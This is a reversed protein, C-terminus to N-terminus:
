QSQEALVPYFAAYAERRSQWNSGGVRESAIDVSELGSSSSLEGNIGAIHWYYGASEWAFEEAIYDAGTLVPSQPDYVVRSYRSIDVGLNAATRLAAYYAAVIEEKGNHSPNSYTINKLEPVYRKMMWTSFAMQGYEHTLHLYGAGRTGSTYGRGQFYSEDGHETLEKGAGTEVTVQALFHSIEEPTTIDYEVLVRNLEGLSEQSLNWQLKGMVSDTYSLRSIQESTVLLAEATEVATPEPSEEVQEPECGRLFLALLMSLVFLGLSCLLLIQPPPPTAEKIREIFDSM